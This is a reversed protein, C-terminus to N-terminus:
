QIIGSTTILHRWRAFVGNEKVRDMKLFIFTMQIIVLLNENLCHFAGTPDPERYHRIRPSRGRRDRLM